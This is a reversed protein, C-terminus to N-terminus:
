DIRTATLRGTNILLKRAEFSAENRYGSMIILQLLGDFAQADVACLALLHRLLGGRKEVGSALARM